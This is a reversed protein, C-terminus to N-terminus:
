KRRTQEKDDTGGTLPNSHKIKKLKEIPFRKEYEEMTAKIAEAPNINCQYSIKLILYLMDGIFDKVEENHKQLLMQQTPVDVWKIITWFESVEENMNLLLDKISEPTSWDRADNFKKIIEQINEIDM